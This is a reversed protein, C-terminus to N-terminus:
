LLLLRAFCAKVVAPPMLVAWGPWAPAALINAICHRQLTKRQYEHVDLQQLSPRCMCCKRCKHSQSGTSSPCPWMPEVRALSHLLHQFPQHAIRRLWCECLCPPPSHCVVVTSPCSALTYQM